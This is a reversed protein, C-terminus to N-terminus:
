EQGRIHKRYNNVFWGEIKRCDCDSVFKGTEYRSVIVQNIGVEKGIQQQTKKLVQRAMKIPVRNEYIELLDRANIYRSRLSSALTKMDKIQDKLEANERMLKKYMGYAASTKDLNRDNM